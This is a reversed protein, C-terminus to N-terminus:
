AAFRLTYGLQTLEHSLRAELRAFYRPDYYKFDELRRRNHVGYQRIVEIGTPKVDELVADSIIQQLRPEDLPEAPHFYSIIQGFVELPQMTLNEYQVILKELDNRGLVWKHLFRQYFTLKRDAFSEWAELSDENQRLYLNFDSVAAELFNRILILYPVGPVQPIGTSMRRNLDMDHNKTMAVSADTCPFSQCCEECSKNYYQCYKFSDKFYQKLVRVTLHHGSRPYSVCAVYRLQSGASSENSM